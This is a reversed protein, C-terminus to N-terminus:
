GDFLHALKFLFTQHKLSRITSLKKQERLILSLGRPHSDTVRDVLGDGSGILKKLSLKM